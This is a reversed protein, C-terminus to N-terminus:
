ETSDDKRAESRIEDMQKELATMEKRWKVRGELGCTVDYMQKARNFERELTRLKEIASMPLDRESPRRRARATGVKGNRWLQNYHKRCYGRAYVPLECGNYQCPQKSMTNFFFPARLLVRVGDEDM